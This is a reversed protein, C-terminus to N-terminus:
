YDYGEQYAHLLEGLAQKPDAWLLGLSPAERDLTCSRESDPDM